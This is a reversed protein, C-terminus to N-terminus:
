FDEYIMNKTSMSGAQALELVKRRWALTTDDMEDALEIRISIRSSISSLYNTVCEVMSFIPHIITITSLLPVLYSSVLVVNPKLDKVNNLLFILHSLASGIAYLENANPSSNSDSKPILGNILRIQGSPFIFAEAHGGNIGKTFIYLSNDDDNEEVPSLVASNSTSPSNSNSKQSPAECSAVNWVFDGDKALQEVLRWVKADYEPISAYSPLVRAPDWFQEEPTAFYFLVRPIKTTQPKKGVVVAGFQAKPFVEMLVRLLVGSGYVLWITSTTNQVNGPINMKLNSVLESIFKDDELGFPVLYAANKQIANKRNVYANAEKRLEWLKAKKIYTVQAGLEKARRLMPHETENPFSAVFLTAKKGSQKAAWAVLVQAAGSTAGTYVLEKEPRSILLPLARQKTGCLLHGEQFLTIRRAQMQNSAPIFIQELHVPSNPEPNFKSLGVSLNSSRSSAMGLEFQNIM